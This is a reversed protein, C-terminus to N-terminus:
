QPEKDQVAARDRALLEAAHSIGFEAMDDAADFLDADNPLFHPLDADSM